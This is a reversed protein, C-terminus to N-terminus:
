IYVLIIIKDQQIQIISKYIYMICVYIKFSNYVQKNNILKLSMLTDFKNM